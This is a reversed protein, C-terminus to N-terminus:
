LVGREFDPVEAWADEDTEEYPEYNDPLVEHWGVNDERPADLSIAYGSGEYNKRRVARMFERISDKNRRIDDLTIKKEWLAIMISQCVDERAEMKPVLANVALLEANEDTKVRIYPYAMSALTPRRAIERLRLREVRRAKLEAHRKATLELERRYKEIRYRHTAEQKAKVETRLVLFNAEKEAKKENLKLIEELAAWDIGRAVPKFQTPRGDLRYCERCLATSYKSRPGGCCECLSIM